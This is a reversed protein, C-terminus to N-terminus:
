ELLDNQEMWEFGLRTVNMGDQDDEIMGKDSLRSAALQARGMGINDPPGFVGENEIFKLLTIEDDSLQIQEITHPTYDQIRVTVKQGEKAEKLEEELTSIKSKLEDHNRRHFFVHAGWGLGFIAAITLIDGSTKIFQDM